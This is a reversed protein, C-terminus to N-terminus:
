PYRVRWLLDGVKPLTSISRGVAASILAAATAPAPLPSKSALVMGAPVKVTAPVARARPRHLDLLVSHYLLDSFFDHKPSIVKLCKTRHCKCFAYIRSLPSGFFDHKTSKNSQPM